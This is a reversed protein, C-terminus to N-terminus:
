QPTENASSAPAGSNPKRKLLAEVDSRNYLERRAATPATANFGLYVLLKELPLPRVGNDRAEKTAHSQEELYAAEDKTAEEQKEGNSVLPPQTDTVYAFSLGTIRGSARGIPAPLPQNLRQYTRAVAARGPERDVGPPPLDFEIVGGSSEIMRILDARDDKGDRNMDIRGILDFRQPRDYSWGVSYIFDNYRIPDSPDDTKIIRALSDTEGRQPDGVKVLEISAKPRDSPISAAKQDFVTFRMLPRVGMSRNLNVRVMSTGYDVFTIRGGPKDMVDDQKALEDKIDRINQALEGASKTKDELKITLDNVLNTMKSELAALQDSKERTSAVLEQRSEEGTKITNDLEAKATRLQEEVVSKAKNNVENSQELKQRLDAYNLALATSTRALNSMLDKLRFLNSKASQDANNAFTDAIEKAKTDLARYQAPDIAKADAKKQFDALMASVETTIGQVDARLQTDDKKMQAKAAEYDELTEYGLAKRYDNSQETATRLANGAETAKTEAAARRAFEENYNSNLFYVSVLLVVSLAICFATVIKLGFSDNSAAAM